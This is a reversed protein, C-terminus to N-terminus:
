TNWALTAVRDGRQVGLADLVNALKRTRAFMESYSCRHNPNDATVSVIEGDPYVREAHRMIQTVTLPYDMMLGYLPESM